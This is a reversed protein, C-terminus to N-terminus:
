APRKFERLFGPVRGRRQSDGARQVAVGVQAAAVVLDPLPHVGRYGGAGLLGGPQAGLRQQAAAPEGQQLAVVGRRHAPAFRRQPQVAFKVVGLADGARKLDEAAHGAFLAPVGPRHLQVRLTQGDGLGRAVPPPHGARVGVEGEGGPQLAIEGPGGLLGAERQGGGAFEAVDFPGRPRQDAQARDGAVLSLDLPRGQQQRFAPGQGLTDAEALADGPGGLLEPQERGHVAVRGGDRQQAPAELQVGLQPVAPAHGADQLIERGDREGEALGPLRGPQEAGGLRDPVRDAGHDGRALPGLM